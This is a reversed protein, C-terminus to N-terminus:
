TRLIISNKEIVNDEGNKLKIFNVFTKFNIKTQLKQLGKAKRIDFQIEFL